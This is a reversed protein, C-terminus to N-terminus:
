KAYRRKKWVLYVLSIALISIILLLVFGGYDIHTDEDGVSTTHDDDNIMGVGWGCLENGWINEFSNNELTYYPHSQIFIGSYIMNSINNGSIVTDGKPVQHLLIGTASGSIENNKITHNSSHDILIGVFGGRITNNVIVADSNRLDLGAGGDWHGMGILESDEVRLKGGEKILIDQGRANIKSNRIELEGGDYVLVLTMLYQDVVSIDVNRLVLSGGEKVEILNMMEIKANRIDLVGGDRIIIPKELVFDEEWVETVEIIMPEIYGNHPIIFDVEPMEVVSIEPKEKLPSEDEGNPPIKITDEHDEGWYNGMGEYSWYNEGNNFPKSDINLFVNRYLLNNDVQDLIVGHTSEIVANNIIENQNSGFLVELGSRGVREMKNAQIVNEISEGFLRIGSGSIDSIHNNIITNKQSGYLIIGSNRYKESPEVYDWSHIITNGAVINHDAGTILIHCRYNEFYNNKVINHSSFAIRLGTCGGIPYEGLVINDSIVNNSGGVMIGETQGELNNGVIKNNYGPIIMRWDCDRITCNRVTNNNSAIWIGWDGNQIKLSELTVDPSELLLITGNGGGDIVPPDDPNEARITVGRDVVIHENYTGSRVIITCGESVSGLADQINAFHTEGWGQTNEDYEPSVWVESPYAGVHLTDFSVVMLVTFIICVIIRSFNINRKM